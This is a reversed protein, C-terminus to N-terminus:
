RLRKTNSSIHSRKGFKRVLLESFFNECYDKTEYPIKIKRNITFVLGLINKKM